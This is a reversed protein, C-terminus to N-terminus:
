GFLPAFKRTIDIVQGSNNRRITFQDVQGDDGSKQFSRIRASPVRKSWEALAQEAKATENTTEYETM